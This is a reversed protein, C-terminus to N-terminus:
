RAIREYKFIGTDVGAKYIYTVDVMFDPLNLILQINELGEDQCEEYKSVADELEMFHHEVSHKSNLVPLTVSKVTYLPERKETM